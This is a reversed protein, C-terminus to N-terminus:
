IEKLLVLHKKCSLVPPLSEGNSYASCAVQHQYSAKQKKNDHILGIGAYRGLADKTPIHSLPTEMQKNAFEVKKNYTNTFYTFLPIESTYSGVHIQITTINEDITWATLANYNV